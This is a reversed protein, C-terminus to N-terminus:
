KPNNKFHSKNKCEALFPLRDFDDNALALKKKRSRKKIKKKYNEAQEFQM